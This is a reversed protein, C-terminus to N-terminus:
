DNAASTTSSRTERWESRCRARGSSTSRNSRRSTTLLTRRSASMSDTRLIRREVAHAFLSFFVFDLVLFMVLIFVFTKFNIVIMIFARSIAGWAVCRTMRQQEKEAATAKLQEFNNNHEDEDREV